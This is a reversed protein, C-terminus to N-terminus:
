RNAIDSKEIIWRLLEEYAMQLNKCDNIEFIVKDNRILSLKVNNSNIKVEIAGNVPSESVFHNICEILTRYSSNNNIM